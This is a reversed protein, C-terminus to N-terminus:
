MICIDQKTNGRADVPIFTNTKMDYLSGTLNAASCSHNPIIEIQEGIIFEDANGCKILGVEESLSILKANEHGKIYGYRDIASNGHAGKDLGLCKAGADCIFTNSDPHSIISALVTLTCQDETAIGLKMQIYDNFVYNGPHFINIHPSKVAESITPTSGSTVYGVPLGNRAFNEKARKMVDAEEMAIRIVDEANGAYVHGPHTSIGLLRINSLSSIYKGLNCCNEPTLGFRHLGSDIIVTMGFYRGSALACDNAIDACEKSDTRLIIDAKDTLAALRMINAKSSVPYAYMINKAGINCALECEDITGCLFGYAGAELQMKAIESSKHTKMMPMLKKGNSDCLKQMRYINSKLKEKDILTLPTRLMNRDKMM